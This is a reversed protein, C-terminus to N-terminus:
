SGEPERRAAAGEERERELDEIRRALHELSGRRELFAAFSDWHKPSVLVSAMPQFFHMAQSGLYNMPKSCELALLAPATMRRKVVEQCLRDVIPREADTPEAPGAPDVAFANTLIERLRKM